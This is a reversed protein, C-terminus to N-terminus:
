QTKRKKIGLDYEDLIIFEWGRDKAWRDAAGWKAQNVMFTACEALYRKTQRKPKVPINRQISPKIEVLYTKIVGTATKVKIKADLYYRHAKMDVPSRYPVVTEESSYELVNTNDDCWNLFRVEWSSRTTISTVNGVYKEPHKPKWSKPTPYRAMNNKFLYQIISNILIKVIASM